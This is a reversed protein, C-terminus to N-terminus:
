NLEEDKFEVRCPTYRDLHVEKGCYPCDLGADLDLGRSQWKFDLYNCEFVCGCKQCTATYIRITPKTIYGDRLIKVSM